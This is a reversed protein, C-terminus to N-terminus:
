VQDITGDSNGRFDERYKGTEDPTFSPMLLRTILRERSSQVTVTRIKQSNNPDSSTSSENNNKSKDLNHDKKSDQNSSSAGDQLGLKQMDHLIAATGVRSKEDSHKSTSASSQDENRENRQDGQQQDKDAATVGRPVFGVPVVRCRSTVSSPADYTYSSGDHSGTLRCTDPQIRRRKTAPRDDVNGFIVQDRGRFEWLAIGNNDLVYVYLEVGFHYRNGSVHTDHPQVVGPPLSHEDRILGYRVLWDGPCVPLDGLENTCPLLGHTLIPHVNHRLDRRIICDGLFVRFDDSLHDEYLISGEGFEEWEPHDRGQGYNIGTRHGFRIIIPHAAEPVPVPLHNWTPELRGADREPNPLNPAPAESTGTGDQPIRPPPLVAPARPPQPDVSTAAHQYFKVYGGLGTDEDFEVFQENLSIMIDAPQPVGGETPLRMVSNLDNFDYLMSDGCLYMWRDTEEMEDYPDDLIDGYQRGGKTLVYSYVELRTNMRPPDGPVAPPEPRGHFKLLLDDAQLFDPDSDGDVMQLGILREWGPNPVGPPGPEFFRLLLDGPSWDFEDETFRVTQARCRYPGVSPQYLRVPFMNMCRSALRVFSSHQQYGPWYVWVRIVENDRFQYNIERDFQGRRIIHDGNRFFMRYYAERKTQDPCREPYCYYTDKYLEVICSTALIINTPHYNKELDAHGLIRRVIIDGAEPHFDIAAQNPHVQGEFGEEQDAPPNM